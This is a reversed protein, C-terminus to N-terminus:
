SLYVKIIEQIDVDKMPVIEGLEKSDIISRATFEAVELRDFVQFASEGTVIFCDNKCIVNPSKDTVAASIKAIDTYRESFELTPITKLFIYSEPITRSDFKKESIAFAMISQPLATSISNIEPHKAYIETHIDVFSLPTKGEEIKGNKVLVLDEIEMYAVDVNDPCILFSEEDIRISMGGIISLLLDREYSRKVYGLLEEAKEKFDAITKENQFTEYSKNNHAESLAKDEESLEIVKGLKLADLYINAMAEVTEMKHFSTLLNDACAIVGHNEMIALDNGELFAKQVNVGLKESGPIAYDTYGIKSCHKTLEPINNFIPSKHVAGYAVMATPHAHTIARAEKQADYIRLHFPYESTPKHKVIQPERDVIKVMDDATLTGKDIASPTVWVNGEEDKVSLNGGSPTTLKKNYIRTM